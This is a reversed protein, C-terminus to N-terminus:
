RFCSIIRSKTTPPPPGATYSVVGYLSYIHNDVGSGDVKVNLAALNAASWAGNYSISGWADSTGIGWDAAGLWGGAIYLDGFLAGGPPFPAHTGYCWLTINSVSLVDPLTTFGFVDYTGGYINRSIDGATPQRIMDALLDYHTAHGWPTTYLYGLYVDSAPDIFGVDNRLDITIRQNKCSLVVVPGSRSVERWGVALLSVFYEKCSM